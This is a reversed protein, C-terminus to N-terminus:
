KGGEYECITKSHECSQGPGCEADEGCKFFCYGHECSMTDPCEVDSECLYTCMGGGCNKDKCCVGDSCDFDDMCAGGIDGDCDEPEARCDLDVDGDGDFYASPGGCAGVTAGAVLLVVALAKGYRNKNHEIM